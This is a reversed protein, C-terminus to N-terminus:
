LGNYPLDGNADQDRAEDVITRLKYVRPLGYVRIRHQGRDKGIQM